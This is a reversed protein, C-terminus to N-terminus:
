IQSPLSLSLRIADSRLYLSLFAKMGSSEYLLVKMPLIFPSLFGLPDFLTSVTFVIGRKTPPKSTPVVKFQFTDSNADWHLGIARGIPLDDLVLNLEHNAREKEPIM